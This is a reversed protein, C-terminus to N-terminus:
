KAAELYCEWLEATVVVGEEAEESWLEEGTFRFTYIPEARDEDHANADPLVFTGHHSEVTGIARRLYGPCRTHGQPHRNRVRVRDGVDYDPERSECRWEGGQEIMELIEAADPNGGEPPPDPGAQIRRDVENPELIGREVLIREASVLWRGYYPTSLYAAPEMREVGHRFEDVSAVDHGMLTMNISHAIGEWPEDFVEGETTDVPGFGDTGGIDHIGDM